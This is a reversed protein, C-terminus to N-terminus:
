EEVDLATKSDLCYKQDSLASFMFGTQRYRYISGVIFVVGAVYPLAIFLLNNLTTM